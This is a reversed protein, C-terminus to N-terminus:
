FHDIFIHGYLIVAGRGARTPAVITVPDALFYHILIHFSQLLELQPLILSM